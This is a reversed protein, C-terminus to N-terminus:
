SHRFYCLLWQYNYIIRENFKQCFSPLTFHSFFLQGLHELKFILFFPKVFLQELVLLPKVSLFSWLYRHLSQLLLKVRSTLFLRLLCELSNISAAMLLYISSLVVILDTLLLKPIDWWLSKFQTICYPSFALLGRSTAKSILGLYEPRRPTSPLSSFIFPLSKVRSTAWSMRVKSVTNKERTSPSFMSSDLLNKRIMRSIRLYGTFPITLSRPLPLTNM